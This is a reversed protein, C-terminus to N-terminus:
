VETPFSPSKCLFVNSCFSQVSGSTSSSISSCDIYQLKTLESPVFAGPIFLKQGRRQSYRQHLMSAYRKLDPVHAFRGGVNKLVFRVDNIARGFNHLKRIYQIGFFDVCMTTIALGIIIYLLDILLLGQETPVIDGFGIQLKVENFMTVKKTTTLTVFSFYFGSFFNWREWASLITAGFTIYGLLIGIVLSIPITSDELDLQILENRIQREDEAELNPLRSSYLKIINESLFKGIDAVTILMLPVGFLAYIVCFMRGKPTIPVMNGYGISTLLTATFFIANTITWTRHVDDNPNSLHHATIFDTDYAQFLLKTAGDVYFQAKKEVEEKSVTTNNILEWMNSLMKQRHQDILKINRERIEVENPKELHYFVLAGGSVYILSLLILGIHPIIVRMQAKWGNDEANPTDDETESKCYEM